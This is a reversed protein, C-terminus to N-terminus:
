VGGDAESDCAVICTILTRLTSWKDRDTSALGAPREVHTALSISSRASTAMAAKMHRAPSGLRRDVDVPWAMYGKGHRTAVFKGRANTMCDQPSTWPVAHM